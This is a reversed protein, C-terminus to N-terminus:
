VTKSVFSFFQSLGFHDLKKDPVLVASPEGNKLTKLFTDTWEVLVKKRLEIKEDSSRDDLELGRSDGAQRM